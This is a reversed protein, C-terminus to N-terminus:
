FVWNVGGDTTKLITGSYGVCFGVNANVFYIDILYQAPNTTLVNWTQGGDATGLISSTGAGTCAYGTNADTFHMAFIHQTTGSSQPTWTSGGDTTRYIQGDNGGVSGTDPSTFFAAVLQDSTPSSLSTWQGFSSLASSVLLLLTINKM